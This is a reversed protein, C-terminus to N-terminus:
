DNIRYSYILIMNTFDPMFVSIFRGAKVQGPIRSQFWPIAITGDDLGYAPTHIGSMKTSTRQDGFMLKMARLKGNKIAFFRYDVFSASMQTASVLIDPQGNVGKILYIGSQYTPNTLNLRETSNAKDRDGFIDVDQVIATDSNPGTVYVHYPAAEYIQDNETNRWTTNRAGVFRENDGIIYLNYIEGKADHMVYSLRAVGIAVTDPLQMYTAYALNGSLLLFAVLIVPFTLKYLQKM